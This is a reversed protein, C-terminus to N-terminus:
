RRWLRPESTGRTKKIGHQQFLKEVLEPAVRVHRLRALSAALDEFTANPRRIFDALILVAIEAPLPRAPSSRLERALRQSTAEAPDASLYM